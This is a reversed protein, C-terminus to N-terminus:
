FNSDLGKSEKPQQKESQFPKVFAWQWLICILSFVIASLLPLIQGGENYIIYINYLIDKNKKQITYNM